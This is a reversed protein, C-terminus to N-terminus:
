GRDNDHHSGSLLRAMWDDLDHAHHNRGAIEATRVAQRLWTNLPAAVGHQAAVAVVSGCLADIESPRGGALDQFMSSHNTASATIGALLRSEVEADEIAIGTARAVAAVEVAIALTARRRSATAILAGNEVRALATLPNAACNIALKLWRAGDLDDTRQADFGGASLIRCVADLRAPVISAGRPAGIVCGDAGGWRIVGPAVVTAGATTIGAAVASPGAVAQLSAVHGLGNQLTLILGDRARVGAAVPAVAPTQASKSLVLVLDFDGGLDDHTAVNVRTRWTGEPQRVEIGDRRIVELAAHWTGSVTVSGTLSGNVIARGLRAAFLSGMAGTGLVAIRHASDPKMPNMMINSPPSAVRGFCRLRGDREKGSTRGGM